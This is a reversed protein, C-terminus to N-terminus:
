KIDHFSMYDWIKTCDDKMPKWDNDCFYFVYAVKLIDEESMNACLDSYMANFAVYKDWDNVKAHFKMDRTLSIIEARSWHAGMIPSDEEDTEGSHVLNNVDFNAFKESYHGDYLIAHQHRMIHWYLNEDKEKVIKLDNSLSELAEWMKKDTALGQERAQDILHYYTM